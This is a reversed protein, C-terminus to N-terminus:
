ILRYHQAVGVLCGGWICAVVLPACLLLVGLAVDSLAAQKGTVMEWGCRAVGLGSVGLWLLHLLAVYDHAALPKLEPIM